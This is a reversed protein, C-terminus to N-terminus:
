STVSLKRASNMSISRGVIVLQTNPNAGGGVSGRQRGTTSSDIAATDDKSPLM